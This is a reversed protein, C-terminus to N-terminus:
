PEIPWSTHPTPAPMQHQTLQQSHKWAQDELHQGFDEVERESMSSGHVMHGNKDIPTYQGNGQHEVTKLDGLGFANAVAVKLAQRERTLFHRSQEDQPDVAAFGRGDKDKWLRFDLTVTVGGDVVKVLCKISPM